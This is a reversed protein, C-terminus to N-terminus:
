KAADGQMFNFEGILVWVDEKEPTLMSAPLKGFPAARQVIRVAADDLAQYGSSREVHAGGDKLYINGDAAIPVSLVVTGYLRKGDAQPFDATGIEEVRRKFNLYYMAHGVSKTSPTIYTKRTKDQREIEQKLELNLRSIENEIARLEGPKDQLAGPIADAPVAQASADACLALAAIAAWSAKM